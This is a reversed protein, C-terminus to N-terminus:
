YELMKFTETSTNMQIKKKNRNVSFTNLLIRHPLSHPYLETDTQVLGQDLKWPVCYVTSKALSQEGSYEHSNLLERRRRGRRRSRAASQLWHKLISMIGNTSHEVHM